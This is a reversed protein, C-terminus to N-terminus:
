KSDKISEQKGPDNAEDESVSNGGESDGVLADFAEGFINGDKEREQPDTTNSQQEKDKREEM